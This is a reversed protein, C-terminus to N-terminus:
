KVTECNSALKVDIVSTGIVEKSLKSCSLVLDSPM